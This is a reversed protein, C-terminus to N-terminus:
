HTAPLGRSALPEEHQHRPLPSRLSSRRSGRRWATTDRDDPRRWPSRHRGAVAGIGANPHASRTNRGTGGADVPVGPARRLEAMLSSAPRTTMAVSPSAATRPRARPRGIPELPGVRRDDGGDAGRPPSGRDAGSDGTTWRRPLCGVRGRQQVIRRASAPPGCLWAADGLNGPTRLGRCHHRAPQRLPVTTTRNAAIGSYQRRLRLRAGGRVPPHGATRVKVSTWISTGAEVPLVGAPALLPAGGSPRESWPVAVRLDMWVQDRPTPKWASPAVDVAGESARPRSQENPGTQADLVGGHALRECSREVAEISNPARPASESPTTAWRTRFRRLRVNTSSMGHLSMAMPMASAGPSPLPSDGASSEDSSTSASAASSCPRHCLAGSSPPLRPLM